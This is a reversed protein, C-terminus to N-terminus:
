NNNIHHIKQHPHYSKFRCGSPYVHFRIADYHMFYLTPSIPPFQNRVTERHKKCNKYSFSNQLLQLPQLNKRTKCFSAAIM